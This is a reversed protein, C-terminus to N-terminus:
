NLASLHTVAGNGTPSPSALTPHNHRHNHSHHLRSPPVCVRATSLSPKTQSPISRHTPCKTVSPSFLRTCRPLSTIIAGEGERKMGGGGKIFVSGEEEEGDEGQRLSKGMKRGETNQRGGEKLSKGEEKGSMKWSKKGSQKELRVGMMGGQVKGGSGCIKETQLIHAM